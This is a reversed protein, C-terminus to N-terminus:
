IKRPLAFSVGIVLMWADVHLLTAVENDPSGDKESDGQEEKNTGDQALVLIPDRRGTPM